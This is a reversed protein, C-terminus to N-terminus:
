YREGLVVLVALVVAMAVALVVAMAVAVVAVMMAVVASGVVAPVGCGAGAVVLHLALFAARSPRGLACGAAARPLLFGPGPALLGLVGASAAARRRRGARRVPGLLLDPPHCVPLRELAEGPCPRALTARAYYGRSAAGVSHSSNQPTIVKHWPQSRRLTGLARM